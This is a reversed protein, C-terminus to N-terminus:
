VKGKQSLDKLVPLGRKITVVEASSDYTMTYKYVSQLDPAIVGESTVIGVDKDADEWQIYEINWFFMPATKAEKTEEDSAVGYSLVQPRPIRMWHTPKNVQRGVTDNWKSVYPKFECLYLVQGRAEGFTSGDAETPPQTQINIWQDPFARHTGASEAKKQDLLEDRQRLLEDRQRELETSTQALNTIFEPLGHDPSYGWGATRAAQVIEAM